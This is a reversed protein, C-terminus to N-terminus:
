SGIVPTDISAGTPDVIESLQIGAKEFADFYAQYDSESYTTMVIQKIRAAKKEQYDAFVDAVVSAADDIPFAHTGTSISPFAISDCELKEALALSAKYCQALLLSERGNERGYLPGVTHIVHSAPLCYGKTPVVEGVECHGIIRCERELEKGAARHIAGCVGSGALLSRNASNVVVDVQLTAIDGLFVSIKPKM